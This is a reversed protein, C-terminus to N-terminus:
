KARWEFDREFPFMPRRRHELGLQGMDTTTVGPTNVRIVRDCVPAYAAVPAHVGKAVIIRFATPDIGCSTLQKLSFPMTAKTTLLLTMGDSTRVVASPGMDYETFGSHLKLDEKFCGDHLSVVVAECHIPPGHRDDTKGGLVLNVSATVGAANAQQVAEPDALCVFTPGVEAARKRLAHAIMTGDGPSAGGINDGMDLLLSRQGGQLAQDIADDIGLLEADFRERHQWLWNGLANASRSALEPDDDTVVLFSSGMEPVDAWQFGLVMSASLVGPEHRVADVRDCLERLPPEATAQRELNIVVPPFCARQVPRIEGRLMRVLLGSAELGREHQDLHPNTRYVTMADTADVMSQSLSAHADLTSVIPIVPGVQGRLQTLWHGDMDRHVESVSAGHPSVLLGDLPGAGEVQSLMDDLLTDYTGETVVGGPIIRAAFLPVADIGERELGDFFGGMEHHSGAFADRVAHGTCLTDQRFSDLTIPQDVLTNSEHYLMILGVRM